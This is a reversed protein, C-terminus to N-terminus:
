SSYLRSRFLSRRTIKYFQYALANPVLYSFFTFIINWGNGYVLWDVSLLIFELGTILLSFLVLGAVPKDSSQIFYVMYAATIPYAGLIYPMQSLIPIAELPLLLWFGLQLGIVNVFLSEIMVFLVMIKLLISDMKLLWVAAFWPLIFGILTHVIM